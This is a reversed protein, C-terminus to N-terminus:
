PTGVAEAPPEQVAVAGGSKKTFLMEELKSATSEQMDPLTQSYTDLTLMVSTHGLRVSVIKPNTGRQVSGPLRVSRRSRSAKPEEFRVNAGSASLARNISVFGQTLEIDCWRLALAEAPRMGTAPLLAFFEYHEKGKAEALLKVAHDEGLVAKEDRQVKPM